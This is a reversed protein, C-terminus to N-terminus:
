GVAAGTQTMPEGGWSPRPTTEEGHPEGDKRGTAKCLGWDVVLTEGYKGLLVNSPKTDRHAIGRSHAYALAKCVRIFRTLLGRLALSRETPNRGPVDAEHFRRAADKLTEGKILRMAYYPRGDAYRGLGYVPVIGPHELGGTIEGEVLFRTQSRPDDAY